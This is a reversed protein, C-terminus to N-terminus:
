PFYAPELIDAIEIITTPNKKFRFLEVGVPQEHM